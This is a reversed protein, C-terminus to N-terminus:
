RKTGGPMRFRLLSRPWFFGRLRQRLNSAATIRKRATDVDAWYADSDAPSPDGAGFVAIDARAALQEMGLDPYRTALTTGFERRTARPGLPGGVDRVADAIEDWGGSFRDSTRVAGRRRLRRRARLWLMALAPGVLIGLVGLSTGTVVLVRWIWSYDVGLDDEGEDAVPPKPPLKAPEQPPLPPQPVQVRPKLRAQPVQEPPKRDPTPFFPVWGYGDLPVEVWARVDAGTVATEGAPDVSTPTFGMVVRGPLGAQALMLAMVVAYQEDDGIMIQSDLMTSIREFTHGPRSAAQGELGHSFYGKTKLYEAIARVQAIPSEVGTVAEDLRNKVADPIMEPVPTQIASVKADALQQDTPQTTLTARLTFADGEALGVTDVATGTASNYQLGSLLREARPGAFEVRTLQGSNPVWVGQLDKIRFTLTIPDGASDAAPGRGVRAFVGSGAGGAGAVKYVIGDYLDLTALRIAAGTPLGAVTFLTTDKGDQVFKRFSMLPSAYDHLELPPVVYERLTSRDWDASWLGAGGVGLAAALVLALSGLSLQRLGARRTEDEGGVALHAGAARRAERQRWATWALGLTAIGGGTVTPVLAQYDGFSIGFGLMLAVPVLALAPRRLRLALSVAVASGILGVVYPLAFLQPFGSVPTAVTLLEKWGYVVSLALDRITEATPIVGFLAARPVALLGGFAFYSALVLGTVELLGARLKTGLVAVLTGFFVGGAAALWYRGDQYTTALPVLALFALTALVGSDIVRRAWPRDQPNM